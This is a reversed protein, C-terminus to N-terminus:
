QRSDRSLYTQVASVFSKNELVALNTNCRMCLLGRVKGTAHDHDIALARLEGQNNKVTEPKGCLACVGNQLELLVIYEKQTLGYKEKKKYKRMYERNYEKNRPRKYGRLKQRERHQKWMEKTGEPDSIMRKQYYERSMKRNCDKCCSLYRETKSSKLFLDLPKTEGCKSCTKTDELM